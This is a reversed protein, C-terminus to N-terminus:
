FKMLEVFLQEENTLKDLEKIFLEVKKYYFCLDDISTYIGANDILHLFYNLYDKSDDVNEEHNEDYLKFDFKESAANYGYIIIAAQKWKKGYIDILNSKTGANIQNIYDRVDELYWAKFVGPKWIINYNDDRWMDSWDGKNLQSPRFEGYEIRSTPKGNKDYYCYKVIKKETEM